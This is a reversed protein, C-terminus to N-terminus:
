TRGAAAGRRRTVALLTAGFVLSALGVVAWNTSSSGTTPLSGEGAEIGGVGGSTDQSPPPAVSGPTNPPGATTPATGGTNPPSTTTPATTPTTPTTTTTDPCPPQLEVSGRANNEYDDPWLGKVRIEITGTVSGPVVSTANTSGGPAVTTSYGTVPYETGDVEAIVEAITMPRDPLTEQNHITWSVVHTAEPCSTTGSVELLHASAPRALAFIIGAVLIL